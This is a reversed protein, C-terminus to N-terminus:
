ANSSQSEHLMTQMRDEQARLQLLEPSSLVGHSFSHITFATGQSISGLGDQAILLMRATIYSATRGSLLADFANSTTLLLMESM